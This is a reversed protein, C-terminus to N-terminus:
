YALINVGGLTKTCYIASWGLNKKFIPCGGWIYIPKITVVTVSAFM